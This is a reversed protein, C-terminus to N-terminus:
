LEAAGQGSSTRLQSRTMMCSTSQIQMVGFFGKSVFLGAPKRGELSLHLDLAESRFGRVRECLIAHCSCHIHTAVWGSLSDLMAFLIQPRFGLGRCGLFRCLANIKLTIVHAAPMPPSPSGPNGKCGLEQSPQCSIDYHLLKLAQPQTRLFSQPWLM